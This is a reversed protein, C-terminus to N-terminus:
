PGLLFAGCAAAAWAALTGAAVCRSLTGRLLPQAGRAALLAYCPLLGLTYSAKANSFTPVRLHLYLMAAVFSALAVVAFLAPTDSADRGLLARLAGALIAAALPLSLLALASHLEPQWPPAAAALAAGSLYGDLWLTSHLADWFGATAAYVPRVLARGFHLVDGPVRYGPHQWGLDRAPASVLSPDWAGVYPVGLELWNRAFYWGAVLLVALAFLGSARLSRQLGGARHTSWFLALSVAPLLLLVTVKTLLALGFVAGLLLARRDTALPPADRLWHFCLLTVSATLLGSLPENGVVQAMYLNVPLLGGVVCAAMRLDRREPFLLVACRYALEVLGLGALMPLVRLAMRAQADGFLSTFLRYCPAALAYFLPPQFMQAGDGAFPLTGREAVFAVYNTHSTADMGVYLPLRLLNRACVLAFAALLLWRLEAADLQRGRWRLWGHADALCAAFGLAFCALLLPAQGLLGEWATPFAESIAFGSRQAAASAPRWGAPTQDGDRDRALWRPGTAVDLDPSSLRLAPPGKANVVDVRLRNPGPRLLGGVDVSEPRAWPADGERSRRVLAGNVRLEYARLAAVQLRAHAPPREFSTELRFSTVRARSAHHHPSAEVPLHIWEAGGAPVLLAAGPDSPLRAVLGLLLLALAALVLLALSRPSPRRM